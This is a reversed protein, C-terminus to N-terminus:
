EVRYYIDSALDGNIFLKMRYSGAEDGEDLYATSVSIGSKTVTPSELVEDDSAILVVKKTYEQCSKPKILFGFTMKEAGVIKPIVRTPTVTSKCECENREVIGFEIDFLIPNYAEGQGSSNQTCGDSTSIHKAGLAQEDLSKLGSPLPTEPHLDRSEAWINVSLCLLFLLAYVHKLM